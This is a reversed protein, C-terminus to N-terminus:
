GLRLERGRLLVNARALPTGARRATRIGLHRRLGRARAHEALEADTPWPTEVAAWEEESGDFGPFWASGAASADAAPTAGREGVTIWTTPPEGLFVETPDDHTADHLAQRM